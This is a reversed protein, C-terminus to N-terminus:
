SRSLVHFDPKEDPWVKFNSIGGVVIWALFIFKMWRVRFYTRVCYKGLM